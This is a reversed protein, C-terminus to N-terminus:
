TSLLTWHMAVSNYDFAHVLSTVPMSFSLDQPLGSCAHESM